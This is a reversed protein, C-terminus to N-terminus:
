GTPVASRGVQAGVADLGILEVQGTPLRGVLFRRQGYRSGAGYTAWTAVERGDLLVHVTRVQPGVAAALM